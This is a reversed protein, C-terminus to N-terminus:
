RADYRLKRAYWINDETSTPGRFAPYKEPERSMIHGDCMLYNNYNGHWPKDAMQWHPRPSPYYGRVGAWNGCRAVYGEGSSDTDDVPTGEYLLVTEAASTISTIEIGDLYAICAPYPLDAPERLFSNMSYTRPSWKSAWKGTYAPCCFVSRSGMSQCRLYVDLGKTEQAWYTLDGPQGGPSPLCGDWDQAYLEFAAYLQRLNSQCTTKKSAAKASLFVPFLIGALIAIIAIVVLLEILSFGNKSRAPM